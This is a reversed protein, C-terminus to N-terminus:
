SLGGALILNNVARRERAQEVNEFFPGDCWRQREGASVTEDLAVPRLEDGDAVRLGDPTVALVEWAGSPNRASLVFALRYTTSKVTASHFSM